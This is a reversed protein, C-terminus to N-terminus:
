EEQDQLLQRRQLQQGQRERKHAAERQRLLSKVLHDSLCFKINREMEPKSKLHKRLADVDWVMIDADDEGVTIVTGYAGVMGKGDGEHSSRQFAVDNVFGGQEITAINTTATPTLTMVIETDEGENVGDTGDLGNSNISKMRRRIVTPTRNLTGHYLNAQGKVIFYVKDSPLYERTLVTGPPVWERKALELLQHFQGRTFYHSFHKEYLAEGDEEFGPVDNLTPAFRDMVLLAAGMANVAVFM